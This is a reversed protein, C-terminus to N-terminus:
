AQPSLPEVLHWSECSSGFRHLCDRKKGGKLHVFSPHLLPPPAKTISALLRPLVQWSHIRRRHLGGLSTFVPPFLM